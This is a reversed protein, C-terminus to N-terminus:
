QRDPSVRDATPTAGNASGSTDRLGRTRRPVNPPLTTLPSGTRVKIMSKSSTEDQGLLEDGYMIHARTRVPSCYNM